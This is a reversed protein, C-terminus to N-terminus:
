VAGHRTAGYGPDTIRFRGIVDFDLLARGRRPTGPAAKKVPCAGRGLRRQPSLRCRAGWPTVRPLRTEASPLLGGLDNEELPPKRGTKLSTAGQPFAGLPLSRCDNSNGVIEIRERLSPSAFLSLPQSLTLHCRGPGRRRCRVLCRGHTRALLFPAAQKGRSM